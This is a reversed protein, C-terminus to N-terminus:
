NYYNKVSQLHTANNPTTFFDIMQILRQAEDTAAKSANAAQDVLDTNKQTSEDLQAITDNVSQIGRSQAQCAESISTVVDNVQAIQDVIGELVKGSQNVKQTGENVEKVSNEILEKIEKAAEASRSALNRVESAVVAFGRGQDGARAAEVSANLALLNTQFAIDDIVGTIDSIRQSSASIGEMFLVAQNVVEGGEVAYVKAKHSLEEAQQSNSATQTVSETMEGMNLASEKLNLATRETRKSLDMNGSNIDRSAVDVSNASKGIDAVVERLKMVSRNANQKLSEFAGEYDTNITESLDGKALAGLVRATDNIVQETVSNLDNMSESLRSFFGRKGNLDIRYSLNGSKAADVLSQVEYETALEQTRDTWEAVTGIHEGSSDDVVPTIVVMFHRSGMTIEIERPSKSSSSDTNTQICLLDLPQGVLNTADFNACHSRIDLEADRALTDFARNTYIITDKSDAVLVSSSVSNLAQRIRANIQATRETEIMGALKSQMSGLESMLQKFEGQWQGRWSDTQLDGTSIARLTDIAIGIPKLARHLIWGIVLVSFVLLAAIAAWSLLELNRQKVHGEHVDLVSYLRGLDAGDFGALPLNVVEHIRGNIKIRSVAQVANSLFDLDIDGNEGAHFDIEGNANVALVDAEYVKSYANVAEDLERGFQAAGVPKGRHYIPFAVAIVMRGDRGLELGYTIQAESLARDTVSGAKRKDIIQTSTPPQEYVIEGDLTAISLRSFVGSSSMRNFTGLLGEALAEHDGGKLAKTVDRNRTISKTNSEMEFVQNDVIQRWLSDQGSLITAELREDAQQRSLGYTAVQVAAVLLIAATFLAILRTRLM